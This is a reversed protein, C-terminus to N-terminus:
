VDKFLAPINAAEVFGVLCELVRLQFITWETWDANLFPQKSRTEERWTSYFDFLNKDPALCWADFLGEATTFAASPEDNGPIDRTTCGPPMNWSTM